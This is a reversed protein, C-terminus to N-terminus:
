ADENVFGVVPEVIYYLEMTNKNSGRGETKTDHLRFHQFTPMPAETSQSGAKESPKSQCGLAFLTFIFLLINLHNM